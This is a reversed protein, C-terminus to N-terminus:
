KIVKDMAEIILPMRRENPWIGAYHIVFDGPQWHGLEGLGDVMDHSRWFYNYSNFDRQRHIKFHDKYKPNNDFAMNWASNDVIQHHVAVDEYSLSERLFEKSLECNKMFFSGNNMSNCDISIACIFNSDCFTEIKTNYNTIIADCDLWWIWEIDTNNELIELCYRMKDFFAHKGESFNKTKAFLKYGHKQCYPVKNQDYTYHAMELFRDNHSTVLAYKSM